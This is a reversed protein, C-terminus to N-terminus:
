HLKRCKKDEGTEVVRYTEPRYLKESSTVAPKEKMNIGGVAIRGRREGEEGKGEGGMEEGKRGKGKREGTRTMKMQTNLTKM